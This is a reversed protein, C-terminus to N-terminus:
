LEGIRVLWTKEVFEKAIAQYHPTLIEFMDANFRGCVLQNLKTHFYVSWPEVIAMELKIKPESTAM